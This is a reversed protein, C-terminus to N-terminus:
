YHFKDPDILSKNGDYWHYMIKLSENMPTFEFNNLESLLLSNNGSYETRCGNKEISYNLDKQSIEIIKEALTIYDYTKGLCVNYVRHKPENEIFWQVIRVLDDIFLFDFVANQDIFIPMDLVAHCCANSIFRYRWDDYKGYVGFLRLNFVNDNVLTYKTMIYKSFGYQDQPVHTDFYNEDMKSKWHPRSCEAGSGFYLLKGYHNACRTLNFFMRLNNELVLAPDKISGKPAADYTAAHIVVDFQKKELYNFVKGSDMLDLKEKSLSTVIYDRNFVELFSRALFGNGGTLLITSSL